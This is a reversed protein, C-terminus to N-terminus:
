IEKKYQKNPCKKFYNSLIIIKPKAGDIYFCLVRLFDTKIEFVKDQLMKFKREDRIVGADGLWIIRRFLTNYEKPYDTIIKKLFPEDEKTEKFIYIKASGGEYLEEIVGM